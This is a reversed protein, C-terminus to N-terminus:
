ACRGRRLAQEGLHAIALISGLVRVEDEVLGGVAVRRDDDRTVIEAAARRAFMRGPRQEVETDAAHDGGVKRVDKIVVAELVANQGDLDRAFVKGLEHVVGLAAGVRRQRDIQRRLLDATGVAADDLELDVGEALLTQDLAEVVDVQSQDLRRRDLRVFLLGGGGVGPASRGELAGPRKNQRCGDQSVGIHYDAPEQDAEQDDGDGPRAWCEPHPGGHRCYEALNIRVAGSLAEGNMLVSHSRGYAFYIVLGIALWVILRLWTELPLFVMLLLSFAIGLSPVWPVAPRASRASFDGCREQASLGGRRLGARVRVLHRHEGDRRSRRDPDAGRRHRRDIGILLQSRYPTGLTPHVDSFMKPLLGDKAITFFIRSQGYLLVLIVTTLGALAGIKILVSFWTMGIVDVAKAIPDPVNLETYPVLGTVVAAVLVYLITCIVLSGLIGIPMDRQPMKAEQAATSVADFGIFAFFVVAAGRLIGSWGFHGFEGTNAPVLPHWNASTM